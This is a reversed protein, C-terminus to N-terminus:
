KWLTYYLKIIWCYFKTLTQFLYDFVIPGSFFHCLSFMSVPFSPLINYIALRKFICVFLVSAHVLILGWLIYLLFYSFFALFHVFKYYHSQFMEWCNTYVWPILLGLIMHAPEPVVSTSIRMLLWLICILFM